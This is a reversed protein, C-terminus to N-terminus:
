IKIEDMPRSSIYFTGPFCHFLQVLIIFDLSNTYTIKLGILKILQQCIGLDFGCNILYFGMNKKLLVMGMAVAQRKLM